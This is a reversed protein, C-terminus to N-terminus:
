NLKLNFKFLNIHSGVKNLFIVDILTGTSLIQFGGVNMKLAADPSPNRGYLVSELKTSIVDSPITMSSLGTIDRWVRQVNFNWFYGNSLWVHLKVIIGQGIETKEDGFM